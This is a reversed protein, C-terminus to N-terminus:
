SWVGLIKQFFHPFNIGILGLAVALARALLPPSNEQRKVLYGRARVFVERREQPAFPHEVASSRIEVL